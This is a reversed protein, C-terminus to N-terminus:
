YIGFKNRKKKKKLDLGWIFNFVKVDLGWRLSIWNFKVVIYFFIFNYLLGEYM